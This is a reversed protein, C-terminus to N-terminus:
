PNALVQLRLSSHQHHQVSSECHSILHDTNYRFFETQQVCAKVFSIMSMPTDVQFSSTNLTTRAGRVQVVKRSERKRGCRGSVAKCMRKGRWLEKDTQVEFSLRLGSQVLQDSEVVMSVRLGATSAETKTVRTEESPKSNWM